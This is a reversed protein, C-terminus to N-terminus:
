RENDAADPHLPTPHSPLGSLLQDIQAAAQPKGLLYGQGLVGPPLALLQEHTEIGEVVCSLGLQEALSSIVNVITTSTQDHPLGRTFSQDVKVGTVPLEALYRLSAYGTGFDDISIHVGHGRLARLATTTSRGAALLVSETLELTLCGASLGADTLADQVQQVLDALGAQRASLNVSMRLHRQTPHRAHWGALDRCATDLVYQGLPAILGTEEAIPIFQDPGIPHGHADTLRALAEVGVLRQSALDVIPQYALGLRARDQQPVRADSADPLHLAARLVQEVRGREVADARLTSDFVEHRDKGCTKARYMASDADRLAEEPDDGAQAFTMGISVTVVHQVGDVTVPERLAREIRGAVV